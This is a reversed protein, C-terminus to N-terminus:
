PPQSVPLGYCIQWNRWRPQHLLWRLASRRCSSVGAGEASLLPTAARRPAPLWALGGPGPGDLPRLDPDQQRDPRLPREQRGPPHRQRGGAGGPPPRAEDRGRAEQRGQRGEHRGEKTPAPIAANTRRVRRERFQALLNDYATQGLVTRVLFLYVGAFEKGHGAGQGWTLCHAIEHLIYWDNRSNAGLAIDWPSSAHGGGHTFRVRIKHQGWRSQIARMAMIEDIRPQVEDNTLTRTHLSRGYTLWHAKDEAEYVKSRQTDREIQM